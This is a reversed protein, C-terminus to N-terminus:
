KYKYTNSSYFPQRVMTTLVSQVPCTGLLLNDLPQKQGVWAPTAARLYKHRLLRISVAQPREYQEFTGLVHHSQKM